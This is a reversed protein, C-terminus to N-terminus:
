FLLRNRIRVRGIDESRRATRVSRLVRSSRRLSSWGGRRRCDRRRWGAGNLLSGRRGRRKNRRLRRAVAAQAVVRVLLLLCTVGVVRVHARRPSVNRTAALQTAGGADRRLADTAGARRQRGMVTRGHTTAAGGEHGLSPAELVQSATAADVEVRADDVGHVPVRLGVFLLTSTFFFMSQAAKTM